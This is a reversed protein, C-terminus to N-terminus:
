LIKRRQDCCMGNHSNWASNEVVNFYKFIVYIFDKTYGRHICTPVNMEM